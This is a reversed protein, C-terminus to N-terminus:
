DHPYEKLMDSSWDDRPPPPDAADQRRGDAAIWYLPVGRGNCVLMWQAAAYPATTNPDSM